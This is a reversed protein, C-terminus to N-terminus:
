RLVGSKSTHPEEGSPVASRFFAAPLWPVARTGHAKELSRGCLGVAYFAHRTDVVKGRCSGRVQFGCTRAVRHAVGPSSVPAPM